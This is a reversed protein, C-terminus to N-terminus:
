AMLTQEIASNVEKCTLPHELLTVHSVFSENMNQQSGNHINTCESVQAASM